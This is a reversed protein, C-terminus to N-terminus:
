IRSLGDPTPHKTQQGHLLELVTVQEGEALLKRVLHSGIFGAGGTILIRKSM